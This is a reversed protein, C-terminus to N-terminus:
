GTEHGNGGSLVKRTLYGLRQSEELDPMPPEGPIPTIRVVDNEEEEPVRAPIGLEEKIQETDIVGQEELFGAPNKLVELYLQRLFGLSEDVLPAAVLQVKGRAAEGFNLVLLQDVVHWNICRTIARDVLEMNTIALNIHEAAEAKTGFQGELVSREPMLLARVKLADLYRLREVFNGQRGGKDELISFTWGVEEEAVSMNPHTVVGSAELGKGMAEAIKENPTEVGALRSTGQPYGIMLRAGAIKKDYRGASADASVWKNHTLRVNELLGGGYWNTGEVRFSILLSKALSLTLQDRSQYLGAFAGSAGVVLVETIDHLLTKLKRLVIRGDRVEFIKEYSQWGFDVHGFLLSTEMIYDRLPVVWDSILDGWKKPIGKDVEVTWRGILVPAVALTRALAITPDKRITRYTAYAAPLVVSLVGAGEFLFINTAGSVQSKTKEDYDGAKLKSERIQEEVM